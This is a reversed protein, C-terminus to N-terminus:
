ASKRETLTRRAMVSRGDQVGQQYISLDKRIHGIKRRVHKFDKSMEEYKKQVDSPVIVMLAVSQSELQEKLGTCFGLAYTNTIGDASLGSQKKEKCLRRTERCIFRYSYEFVEKAIRVDNERGFFTVTNNSLYYKVKFNPAIVNALVRRFSRNGSHTCSQSTYVIQDEDSISQIGYKAMLEQAKLIAAKAEHESHTSEAKAFLSRIVKNIDM